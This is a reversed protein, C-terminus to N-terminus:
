MEPDNKQKESKVFSSHLKGASVDTTSFSVTVIVQPIDVEYLPEVGSSSTMWRLSSFIIFEEVVNFDILALRSLRVVLLELTDIDKSLQNGYHM